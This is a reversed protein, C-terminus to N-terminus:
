ADPAATGGIEAAQYNRRQHFATHRANSRAARDWVIFCLVCGGYSVALDRGSNAHGRQLM